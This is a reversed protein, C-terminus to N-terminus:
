QELLLKAGDLATGFANMSDIFTYNPSTGWNWTKGLIYYRIPLETNTAPIHVTDSVTTIVQAASEARHELQSIVVISESTQFVNKISLSWGADPTDLRVQITQKNTSAENLADKAESMSGAAVQISKSPDFYQRIIQNVQEANIKQLRKPYEDIYSADLGRQIFSHVQNAVRNTTSLGVIYSGSLTEIAAEVENQSVGNTFWENVVNETAEIGQKMMAPSFSANLQWYGPTLRDGQHLSRISYTLGKNKRVEQMLRSEFSGGLIYNGLLFPLYDDDTRRLGTKFAYRLSVSTKDAIYVRENQKSNEIQTPASSPYDVGGTWGEFASEVAATLQEFDIDGAFVLTMSKPGYHQQHFAQIAEISTAEINEVWADIPPTYNPHTAPYLIRTVAADAAYDPDDAARLLNAVKRSKVTELVDANFAPLRLQEALLEMVTGADNRLFRGSFSLSHTDVGFSLNAGLTDMREAIVFRDNKTTGKDLMMATLGALAPADEPNLADGAAFSGVFSVVDEIPMDIAIIDIGAVRTRQMSKSFNVISTEKTVKPGAEKPTNEAQHELGFVEPDRYYNPGYLANPSLAATQTAKPIFWGTTSNKSQFYKAAVQQLKEATVAQIAKPLTVYSSWDGMAIAENIQDAILYTGDRGYVTEAKIVSKARTLEDEDIGGTILKQIEELIIAETEEHTAEPTLYAGFIFLCPDHLKPGFTFTASAKGNDELARYLRGTKDAGLVQQLLTLAAWDKHTGEPVKYATMVVGVQGAREIILRRPGLQEPELTDVMPIPNPANPIPGYHDIISQITAAKDFGGIVSLVANEPWYYIDYFKRLKEPSTNEIDSRWGITPHQYPHAIFATGYIEKILTRVPNNEGREYENRVVTMESDLDEQRIRLNRMRDAELEITHPVHENALTAYYNTRDFYTTANARAGIREMVSSYDNGKAGNFRETGKFMMHELIHTAGTTGAVENRAGVQYTVMVTSVPQGEKPLLLIRMGNSSLRYEEIQDLTQVHEIGEPLTSSGWCYTALCAFFLSHFLKM